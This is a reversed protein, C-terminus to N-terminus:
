EKVRMNKIQMAGFEARIAFTSSAAKGKSSRAIEGNVKHEVTDGKATIEMEYWEGEKVKPLEKNGPVIDFKIGHLFLDNNCKAGPNFDFRITVDKFEKTTEIYSDGKVAPDILLIGKEVVFRGKFAEGKGTLPEKKGKPQWGDLDKGNFILTFGPELKFDGASSMPLM